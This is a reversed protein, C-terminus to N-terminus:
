LAGKTTLLATLAAVLAATAKARSMRQGHRLFEYAEFSCLEDVVPLLAARAGTLEPAFVHQVQDRLFTRTELLQAAVVPSRHACLRAARAGPAVAEHLTARAEVFAAVKTATPRARDIDPDFLHRN